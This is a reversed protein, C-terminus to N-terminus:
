RLRGIIEFVEIEIPHSAEAPVLGVFVYRPQPPNEFEDSGIRLHSAAPHFDHRRNPRMWMTRMDHDIFFSVAQDDDEADAM